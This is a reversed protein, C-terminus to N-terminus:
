LGLSLLLALTQVCPSQGRETSGPSPTCHRHDSHHRDYAPCGLVATVDYTCMAPATCSPPSAGEKYTPLFPDELIHPRAALGSPARHKRACPLLLFCLENRAYNPNITHFQRFHFFFIIHLSPHAKGPAPKQPPQVPARPHLHEPPCHQTGARGM